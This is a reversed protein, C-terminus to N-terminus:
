PRHYGGQGKETLLPTTWTLRIDHASSGGKNALRFQAVQYRSRVDVSAVLRPEMADEQIEVVRRSTWASVVSALVAMAAAAVAWTTPNTAGVSFLAGVAASVALLGATVLMVRAFIRGARMKDPLM